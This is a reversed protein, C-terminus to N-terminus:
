PKGQVNVIYNFPEGGIDPVIIQFPATEGPMLPSLALDTFGAAIVSQTSDFVTAIARISRVPGASINTVTGGIVLQGDGTFSSEDTWGLEDPGYIVANVDTQWTEDGVSLDYTVAMGPQGQGFRLSFPAFEGSAIGYGMVTDVAEALITGDAAKLVARVPLDTAPAAGFNAVEGTIFLVGAPTTWTRIHLVDLGARVAFALSDSEVPQLSVQSNIVFTNTIAQLQALVAADAARPLRVEALGVLTGAPQIFTNVQETFGGPAQYLGALRWSGDGMAQRSQETYHAADPHLESQYRDLIDGLTQATIDRGLNAVAFRLAPVDGGPMSFSAEALTTTNVVTVAWDRPVDVTFAGSPHTYRLM